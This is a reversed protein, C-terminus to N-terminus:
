SSNTILSGGIEMQGAVPGPDDILIPQDRTPGPIPIKAPRQVAARGAGFRVAAQEQGEVVDRGRIRGLGQGQFQGHLVLASEGDARAVLHEHM